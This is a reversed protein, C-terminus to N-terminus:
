PSAAPTAPELSLTFTTGSGVDSSFTLTAGQADVLRKTLALGLGTSPQGGQPRNARVRYFPEFIRERDGDPIGIGTDSVSVHVRGNREEASVEVRGGAPTYKVANDVLNLIVERLRRPDATVPPLGRAVSVKLTLDGARALGDLTRRLEKITDALKVPALEVELRGAEARALELLENILVLLQESSAIITRATEEPKQEFRPDALMMAQSRIVALPTRLDHSVAALFETREALLRRIEETRLNVRLELNDYLAELQDAMQNVGQAVEGLEDDSVVPVRASLDGMGLARNTAVLPRLQALILRSLLAGVAVVGLMVAVVILALRTSTGRVSAYVADTPATAALIGVRRGQVDLPAYLTAVRKGDVRRTHRVLDSGRLKPAVPGAPRGAQALLHGAPGFIATGGTNPAAGGAAKAAAEAALAEVPMGVIAVGRAECGPPTLCIPAAIALLTRGGDDLFGAHRGTAPDALAAAVLPSDLWHRGASSSPAGAPTAHRLEVVGVGKADTAVILGADRKLALVSGLLSEVARRDGSRLALPMGQVNAAFNVSEALYLERDHVLSRAEFLRRALEQDLSVQARDSLDRVIFFAGASGFTVILALFPLLLKWFLSLDRVRRRAM